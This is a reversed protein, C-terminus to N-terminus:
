MFPAKNFLSNVFATLININVEDKTEIQKILLFFSSNYEFITPSYESRNIIDMSPAKIVIEALSNKVRINPRSNILM